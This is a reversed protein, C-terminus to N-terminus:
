EIDLDMQFRRLANQAERWRHVNEGAEPSIKIGGIGFEVLEGPIEEQTRKKTLFPAGCNICVAAIRVNPSGCFQCIKVNSKIEADDDRRESGHFKWNKPHCPHGHRYSNRVMDIIFGCEKGEFIRSTRGVQQMYVSLSMTHRLLLAGDVCPIDMGEGIVDKSCLILVDGNRLADLRDKRERVKMTGDVWTAPIGAANFKETFEKCRPVSHCFALARKGPMIKKYELVADGELAKCIEDLSKPNYDGKLLPTNEPAPKATKPCFLRIPSLFGQEILKLMPPGEVLTKFIGGVKQSLGKGDLREPTATLGIIKCGNKYFHMLVALWGPAMAHHAEDIILYDPVEISGGSKQARKFRAKLTDIMAMHVGGNAAHRHITEERIMEGIVVSQLQKTAILRMKFLPDDERGEPPELVRAFHEVAQLFIEQRHATFMVSKRNLLIHRGLRAATFTKGFGTQAQMMIPDNGKRLHTIGENLWNRQDPRLELKM